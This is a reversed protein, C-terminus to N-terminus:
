LQGPQSLPKRLYLYWGAANAPNDGFVAKNVTGRKNAIVRWPLDPGLRRVHELYAAVATRKTDVNLVAERSGLDVSICATGGYSGVHGITNAQSSLYWRRLLDALGEKGNVKIGRPLFGDNDVQGYPASM